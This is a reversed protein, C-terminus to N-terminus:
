RPPRPARRHANLETASTALSRRWPPQCLMRAVLSRTSGCQECAHWPPGPRGPDDQRALQLVCLALVTLRLRAREACRPRAGPARADHPRPAAGAPGSRRTPSALRARHTASPVVAPPQTPTLTTQSAEATRPRSRSSGPRVDDRVGKDLADQTCHVAGLNQALEGALASVHGSQHIVQACDPHGDLRHRLRVGLLDRRQTPDVVTPDETAAIPAAEREPALQRCRHQGRDPMIRSEWRHPPRAARSIGISCPLRGPAAARVARAASPCRRDASGARQALRPDTGSTCM